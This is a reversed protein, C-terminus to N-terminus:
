RVSMICLVLLSVRSHFFAYSTCNTSKGESDQAPGPLYHWSGGKNFTVMTEQNTSLVSSNQHRNAIYIGDLGDVKHIDAFSEDVM